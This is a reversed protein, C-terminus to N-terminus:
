RAAKVFITRLVSLAISRGRNTLRDTGVNMRNEWDFQFNFSITEPEHDNRQTREITLKLTSSQDYM